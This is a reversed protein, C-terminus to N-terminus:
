EQDVDDPINTLDLDKGTIKKYLNIVDETASEFHSTPDLSKTIYLGKSSTDGSPVLLDSITIFKEKVEGILAFAPELEKEPKDTEVTASIITIYNKVKCVQHVSSVMMVYIDSKRGLQRQPIIIQISPLDKTGPIPHDTICICRIVKGISKVKDGNGTSLMYTPNCILMPTKATETGSTVGTLKGSEDYILNDIDKNLMFTGGYIACMRSFGEPIGGLGYIPYIFPSDGYRGISDMYLRIKDVTEIIPRDLFADNAYLAVAHGLFDVTNTSLEFKKVLTAFSTKVPDLGEHTKPDNLKFKQVYVFFDKCRKKEWFGMLDSKLAESDNSPVKQITAGGKSFMGGEKMQYVYTGDIPRWELYKAVKTKL